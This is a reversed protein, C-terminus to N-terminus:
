LRADESIIFLYQDFDEMKPRRDTTVIDELTLPHLGFLAGMKEILETKHVGDINIWTVTPTEKFPLCEEITELQKEQVNSADYDIISIKVKEVKRDRMYVPTGPPLGRTKSRRRMIRLMRSVRNQATRIRTPQM